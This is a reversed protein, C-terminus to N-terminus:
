RGVRVRPLCDFSPSWWFFAIDAGTHELDGIHIGGAELTDDPSHFQQLRGETFEDDASLVANITLYVFESNDIHM